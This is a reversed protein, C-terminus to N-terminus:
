ETTKNRIIGARARGYGLYVTIVDDPQGPMVWAPVNQPITKDRLSLKITAVYAERGHKGEEYNQRSLGLKQATSASVLAVNDWTIKTLPKPLEQLWGNNAFRGGYISPDARFVVLM